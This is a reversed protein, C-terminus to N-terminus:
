AYRAFIRPVQGSWTLATAPCTAPAAGSPAALTIGVQQRGVSSINVPIGHMMLQNGASYTLAHVTPASSYTVGLVMPWYYGDNPVAYTTPAWKFAGAGTSLDIVGADVLLAEGVPRGTAVAAPYMVLRWTSTGITILYVGLEVTGAALWMPHGTMTAVTVASVAGSSTGQASIVDGSSPVNRYDVHGWALGAPATPDPFIAHRRNSAVGLRSVTASGTAVPIDGKTTVVNKPIRANVGDDLEAIAAQVRTTTVIALGTPSVTVQSAAYDADAAVVAGSRGFVTDVGNSSSAREWVLSANCIVMDGVRFVQSGSGLNRTGAVTVRYQDGPDGTGDVLTPTNTAANWTGMYTMASTPLQAVPLKAGGDLSAAGGAAGVQDADLKGDVDTALGDLVAHLGAATTDFVYPTGDPTWVMGSVVSSDITGDPQLDATDFHMFISGPDGEVLGGGTLPRRDFHEIGMLGANLGVWWPQGVNAVSDTGPYTLEAVKWWYRGETDELDAWPEATRLWFTKRSQGAINFRHEFRITVPQGLVLHLRRDVWTEQSGARFTYLRGPDHEGGSVGSPTSTRCHENFLGVEDRRIAFASEDNDLDIDLVLPDHHRQTCWELSSVLEGTRTPDGAFPVARVVDVYGAPALTALNGVDPTSYSGPSCVMAWKGGSNAGSDYLPPDVDEAYARDGHPDVAAAHGTIATSVAADITQPLASVQTSLAGVIGGVWSLRGTLFGLLNATNKLAQEVQDPQETVVMVLFGVASDTVAESVDFLGCWQRVAAEVTDPDLMGLEDDPLTISSAAGSVAGTGTVAADAPDLPVLVRLTTGLCYLDYYGPDAFFSVNGTPGTTAPNDVAVARNRDAWLDALTSTGPLRVEFETDVLPRGFRNDLNDPGWLGAHEFTM